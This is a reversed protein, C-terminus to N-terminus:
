RDGGIRDALERYGAAQDDTPSSPFHEDEACQTADALAALVLDADERSISLGGTVIVTSADHDDLVVDADHLMSPGALGNCVSELEAALRLAWAVYDPTDPRDLAAARFDSLVAAAAIRRALLDASV